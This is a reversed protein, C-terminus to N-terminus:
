GNQMPKGPQIFKQEIQKEEYWKALKKSIFEQGNDTGISIPL